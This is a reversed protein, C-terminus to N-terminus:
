RVGKARIKQWTERQRDTLHRQRAISGLFQREWSTAKGAALIAEIEKNRADTEETVRPDWGWGNFKGCECCILRSYHTGFGPDGARLVEPEVADSGCACHRTPEVNVNTATAEM